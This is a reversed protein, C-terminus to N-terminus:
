RPGTYTWDETITFRGFVTYKIQFSKDDPSNITFLNPGGPAAVGAVVMGDTDIISVVKNTAPDFVFRPSFLLAPNGTAIEEIAYLNNFFPAGLSYNPDLYDVASAGATKLEVGSQPYIGTYLGNADVCTGTVDYVGDYKNKVALSIFIRGSVQSPEGNEVEAVALGIAYEGNLLDSPKLKIQVIENRDTQTLTIESNVITFGANPFPLYSTGNDTNYDGVIAPLSVLKVKVANPAYSRIFLRLETVDITVFDNSFEMAISEGNKAESFEAIARDTNPTVDGFITDRKCSSLFTMGVLLLFSM